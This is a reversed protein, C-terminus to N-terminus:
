RGLELCMREPNGDVGTDTSQKFAPRLADQKYPESKQEGVHTSLDIRSAAPEAPTSLGQGEELSSHLPGSYM